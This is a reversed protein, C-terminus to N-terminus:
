IWRKRGLCKKAWTGKSGKKGDRRKQSHLLFMTEEGQSMVGKREGADLAYIDPTNTSRGTRLNGSKKEERVESVTEQFGSETLRGPKPKSSTVAGDFM